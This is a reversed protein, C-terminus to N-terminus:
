SRQKKIIKNGSSRTTIHDSYSAVVILIWLNILALPLLWSRHFWSETNVSRNMINIVEPVMAAMISIRGISSDHLMLFAGLLHLIGIIVWFLVALHYGRVYALTGGVIPV